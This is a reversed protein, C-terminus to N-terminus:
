ALPAVSGVLAVDIEAEPTDLWAASAAVPATDALFEAQIRALDWTVGDAFSIKQLPNFWYTTEQSLFSGVRIQDSTGAIKILLAHGEASLQLDSGAIGAKFQLTDVTDPRTSAEIAKIIDQGDGRGFVYTDDGSGGQLEDMGKGGDLTDNGAAGNLTDNGDRGTLKDGANSGGIIDSLDTGKFLKAEIAPLDWSTGNAFTIRQLTNAPNATTGNELFTSVHIQGDANLFRVVLTTSSSMLHIDDPLIGAKFQLTNFGNGATSRIFDLIDHGDGLGYVYTDDGFGGKIYDAGAGGELTDNGDAGNLWDDGGQGYLRDDGATGDLTDNGSTGAYLKANIAALNWSSGDAFLFQQLPNTYTNAVMQPVFGEASLQDTGGKIKIVLAGGKATLEIDGPLVGAKFALTDLSGTQQDLDTAITDQGDGKGFLYTDNGAGGYLRDNGSGGDLTDNGAEGSLSDNGSGGDLVDNGTRGSLTDDGGRGSIRDDLYTGNRTDALETGAYLAASIAALDWSTGDAFVIQQLPNATNTPNNGYLFGDIRVQDTSGNLNILLSTGSMDLAIDAPLVGPKFRLTNIEGLPRVGADYVIDRGDGRGFLFTDNGRGGDMSDNGAGGDLTDNGGLGFLKDAGALGQLADDADGGTLTDNGATGLYAAATVSLLANRTNINM